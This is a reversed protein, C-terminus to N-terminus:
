VSANHCPPLGATGPTLTPHGVGGLLLLPITLPQARGRSGMTEGPCSVAQRQRKFQLGGGPWVCALPGTPVSPLRRGVHPHSIMADSPRARPPRQLCHFGARPERRWGDLKVAQWECSLECGCYKSLLLCYHASSVCLFRHFNGNCHSCRLVRSSVRAAL